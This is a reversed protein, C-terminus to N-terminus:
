ARLLQLEISRLLLKLGLEPVAEPPHHRALEECTAAFHEGRQIARLFTAMDPDIQQFHMTFHQRHILFDAKEPLPDVGFPASGAEVSDDHFHTKMAKWYTELDFHSRMLTWDQKPQWRTEPWRSQPLQQLQSVNYSPEDARDFLQIFLTELQVIDLLAPLRGYQEHQCLFGHLEESLASMSGPRPPHAQLYDLWISTFAQEGVTKWTLSYLERAIGILRQHYANNYIGLAETQSIQSHPAFLREIPDESESLDQPRTVWQWFQEQEERWDM